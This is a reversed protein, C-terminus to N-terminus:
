VTEDQRRAFRPNIAPGHYQKRGVLVWFVLAFVVAASFMVASWNMTILTVPTAPPFFSMVFTIFTYVMAVINVTMGWSGMNWPGFAIQEKRLRKRIMLSICILYSSFLGAIVLSVIANFAATSGINILALLANFLATCGM